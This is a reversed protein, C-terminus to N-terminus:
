QAEQKEKERRIKRRIERRIEQAHRFLDNKAWDILRQANQAQKGSTPNDTAVTM